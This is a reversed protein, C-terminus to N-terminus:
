GSTLSPECPDYGKAQLVRWASANVREESLTGKAVSSELHDLVRALQGGEAWLAVDGGAALFRRTAEPLDYQAAVALMGGLEDSIVVGDFGLDRRLLGDIAAPSMTAPQGDTLGPVDLHGVMVWRGDKVVKSYPRLDVARLEALSPTRAPGEHSDGTARGHGPFHKLVPTIGSSELGSSFADAYTAVVAPDDSYSRDGIVERDRQASVDVVPALDVTVGYSRLAKGRQAALKTVERPSRAAQERASPLDGALAAISQVRGGEDDVAVAVPVDQPTRLGRLAGSTYVATSGGTRRIYIGGVGAAAATQAESADSSSVGIMALQALRQRLPWRGVVEAGDCPLKPKSTSTTTTPRPATTSSAKGPSPETTSSGTPKSTSAQEGPGDSRACGVALTAILVVGAM